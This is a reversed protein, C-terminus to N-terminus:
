GNSPPLNREMTIDTHVHHRPPTMRIDDIWGKEVLTGLAIRCQCLLVGICNNWPGIPLVRLGIVLMAFQLNAAHTYM